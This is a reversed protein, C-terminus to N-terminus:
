TRMWCRGHNSRLQLLEAVRSRTVAGAGRELDTRAGIDEIYILDYGAYDRPARYDALDLEAAAEAM